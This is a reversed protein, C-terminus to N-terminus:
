AAPEPRRSRARGRAVSVRAVLAERHPESVREAKVFTLEYAGLTAKEGQRLQVEISTGM